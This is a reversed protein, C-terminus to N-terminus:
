LSTMFRVVMLKPSTVLNLVTTDPKYRSVDCEREKVWRENGRIDIAKEVDEFTGREKKVKVKLHIYMNTAKKNM